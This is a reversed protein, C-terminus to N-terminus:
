ILDGIYKAQIQIQNDSAGNMSGQLLYGNETEDIVLDLYFTTNAGFVSTVSKDHQSVHLKLSNGNVQGKYVFGFDGGNVKSDQVIATGNGFDQQNSQFTVFYIGNKM